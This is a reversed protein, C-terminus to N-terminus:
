NAPAPPAVPGAPPVITGGGQTQDPAPTTEIGKLKEVPAVGVLEGHENFIHGNDAITFNGPLPPAPDGQTNQDYGTHPEPEANDEAEARVITEDHKRLLAVYRDLTLITPNKATAKSFLGSIGILLNALDSPVESVEGPFFLMPPMRKNICRTVIVEDKYARLWRQQGMALMLPKNGERAEAEVFAEVFPKELEFPIVFEQNGHTKAEKQQKRQWAQVATANTASAEDVKIPCVGTYKVLTTAM